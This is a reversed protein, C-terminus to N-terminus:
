RPASLKDLARLVTRARSRFAPADSGPVQQELHLRLEDALIPEREALRQLVTMSYVKVTVAEDPSALYEFSIDAALGAIDDPIDLISAAKMTNRKVADHLNEPRRLNEFLKQLHPQVATPQAEACHSIVWAGRQAYLPEDGTVIEVVQGFRKASRGIYSVIEMTKAKTHESALETRIDM